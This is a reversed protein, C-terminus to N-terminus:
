ADESDRLISKVFTNAEEEEPLVERSSSGLSQLQDPYLDREQFERYRNRFINLLPVYDEFGLGDMAELLDDSNIKFRKKEHCKHIAENAVLGIFETVCQQMIKISDEDIKANFPLVRRM